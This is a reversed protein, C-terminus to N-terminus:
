SFGMLGFFSAVTVFFKTMEIRVSLYWYFPVSGAAMLGYAAKSRFAELIGM